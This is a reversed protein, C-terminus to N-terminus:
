NTKFLPGNFCYTHILFMYSVLNSFLNSYVYLYINSFLFMYSVICILSSSGNMTFVVARLVAQIKQNFPSSVLLYPLM